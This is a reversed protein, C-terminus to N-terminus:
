QETSPLEYHSDILDALGPVSDTVQNQARGRMKKYFKLALRNTSQDAKSDTISLLAESIQEPHRKMHDGFTGLGGEKYDRYLPELADCFEPVLDRMVARIFGPKAGKLAKFGTKILLGSPGRRRSVEDELFRECDTIVQRRKEKDRPFIIQKLKIM